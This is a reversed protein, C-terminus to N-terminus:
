FRIGLALFIRLRRDLQVGKHYRYFPYDLTFTIDTDPSPHWTTGILGIIEDRGSNWDTVGDISGREQHRWQFGLKLNGTPGPYKAHLFRWTGSLSALYFDGETVQQAGETNHKVLALADFRWLDLELNTAVAILPDWSGSGPQMRTPLRIGHDRLNTQATPFELGGIIAFHYASSEWHEQILAYKFLGAVDGLGSSHLTPQTSGKNSEEVKTVWPVLLTVSYNHYFAYDVGLVTRHSDFTRHQADTVHRTGSRQGEKNQYIQSVSLRWGKQFLPEASFVEIGGEQALTLTGPLSLSLLAIFRLAWKIPYLNGAIIKM